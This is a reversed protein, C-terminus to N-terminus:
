VKSLETLFRNHYDVYIALHDQLGKITKTTCWTRRLLRNLNARLMACTHNLAFLPDFVLKKLEGQGTIAGRGGRTTLHISQPFYKKLAIPYHPNQDSTFVADASVMSRLSQLLRNWGRKRMDRRKGYKRVSKEALLGRAPMRSVQVGLIKRTAPDVALAVSLPKLKTHEMTELDDFQVQRLRSARYGALRVKERKLCEGAIFRFYRVVTKKDVNLLKAARRQSVTSAMLRYLPEVIRRRKQRYRPTGTSQSFHKGCRTCLYRRVRRSDCARFYSGNSVVTGSDPSSRQSSACKLRPCGPKM